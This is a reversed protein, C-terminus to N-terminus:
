GFEGITVMEATIWEDRPNRQVRTESHRTINEDRKRSKM